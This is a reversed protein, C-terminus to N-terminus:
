VDPVFDPIARHDTFDTQGDMQRDMKWQSCYSVMGVTQSYKGECFINKKVNHIINKLHRYRSLWNLYLNNKGLFRISLEKM